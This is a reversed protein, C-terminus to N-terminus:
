AAAEASVSEDATATPTNSASGHGLWLEEVTRGLAAAIACRTAADPVLGNVILSMRPADLGVEDALSKQTRENELLALRLPTPQPM